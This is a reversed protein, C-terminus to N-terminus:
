LTCISRRLILLLPEGSSHQLPEPHTHGAFGYSAVAGNRTACTHNGGPRLGAPQAHMSSPTPIMNTHVHNPLHQPDPTRPLTPSARQSPLPKITHQRTSGPADYDPAAAPAGPSSNTNHLVPAAPPPVSVARRIMLVGKMAQFYASIPRGAVM